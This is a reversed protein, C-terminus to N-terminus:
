ETSKKTRQRRPNSVAEAFDVIGQQAWREMHQSALDVMAPLYGKHAASNLAPLTHKRQPAAPPTAEAAHAPTAVPPQWARM